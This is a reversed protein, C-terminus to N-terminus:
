DIQISRSSRARERVSAFVWTAVLALEAIADLLYVKSIRGRRVYVVDIGTLGLASGVALLRLEPTVARRAGALTLTAGIVTILVGATKVLWRDAKPGTVMEFSRISVLPWMGTVLYFLGQGLSVLAGLGNQTDQLSRSM